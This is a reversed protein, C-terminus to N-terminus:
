RNQLQAYSRRRIKAGLLREYAESLKTSNHRWDARESVIKVNARGAVARAADDRLALMLKGALAKADRTPFLWGNEDDTIWERNGQNDPAVVPLGCAMAELLSISSGDCPAASAYLDAEAFYDPLMEEPVRGALHIRSEFHNTRIFREVSKRLSGDGLMLVRVDGRQRLVTKIAGLLVRIGYDPELARATIVVKCGTWGLRSRLELASSKPRFKCLEVGWPFTFIRDMPLSSFEAIRRRVTECDAIAADARRLTFKTIQELAKTESPALLVDSGWSMALLPHFGSLAAFFGGTQVPGAHILDPAVKRVLRDFHRAAALWNRTAPSLEGPTLPPLWHISAGVRPLDHQMSDAACPLVFIEHEMEALRELFRRDHTCYGQSVYLIRAM